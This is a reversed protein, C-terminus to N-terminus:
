ANAKGDLELRREDSVQIYDWDIVELYGRAELEGYGHLKAYRVFGDNFDHSPTQRTVAAGACIGLALAILWYLAPHSTVIGVVTAVVIFAVSSLALGAVISGENRDADRLEDHYYARM